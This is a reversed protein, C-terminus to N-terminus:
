ERLSINHNTSDVGIVADVMIRDDILVDLRSEPQYCNHISSPMKKITKEVSDNKSNITSEFIPKKHM